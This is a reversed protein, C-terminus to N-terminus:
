YEYGSRLVDITRHLGSEIDYYSKWGTEKLKDSALTAKTATSYGARETADPLEFIVKRGTYDAIIKALDKLMIDSKDSVINYAEGCEGDFLLKLIGSVADAMYAYSYEQTGESKLVIDENHVGKLIFQSLAKTDSSLMTPGYCRSLRPIVVDLGNQKIYAQCLTEGTRKSEPYGARLTNCDIYGLYNEAFKDTDGKNEGYIEVSSIFVFRECSVKGAWDLLNNTGIVNASITGIPDSAYAVPHTNSAAHIIYDVRDGYIKEDIPINIDHKIFCFGERDFYNEFRNKAKEENRGFAYVTVNQNHKENRYMLVDILFSGIMGTAGSIALSKNKLKDWTYDLEAIKRIDDIYISSNYLNM